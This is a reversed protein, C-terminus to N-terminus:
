DGQRGSFPADCWGLLKYTALAVRERSSDDEHQTRTEAPHVIPWPEVALGAKVFSCMARPMHWPTTILLWRQDLRPKLLGATNVANEHTNRSASEILVRQPDIGKGLLAHVRGDDASVGSIVVRIHPFLRALRGAERLREEGGGLAIVGTLTEPAAIQARVSEKELGPGKDHSLAVSAPWLSAALIAVLGWRSAEMQRVKGGPILIPAIGYYRGSFTADATAQCGHIVVGIEGSDRLANMRRNTHYRM